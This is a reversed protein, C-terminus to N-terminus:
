QSFKSAWRRIEQADDSNIDLIKRPHAQNGTPRQLLPAVNPDIKMRVQSTRYNGEAEPPIVAGPNDGACSDGVIPPGYDTLRYATANFHCGGGPDGQAPDGPGCKQRFLVPEVHCYFFRDDFIVDALVFDTGPDVTSPFLEGDGCAALLPCLWVICPLLLSATRIKRV